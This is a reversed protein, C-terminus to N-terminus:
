GSIHQVLGCRIGRHGITRAATQPVRPDQGGMRIMWLVTAGLGVVLTLPILWRPAALPAPPPPPHWELQRALIMPAYRATQAQDIYGFNKFFYGTVSVHDILINGGRPMNQPVSTCVIVAPHNQSHDTYLWAEYLTKITQENEAIVILKRVRGRLTVLKGHYLDTNKILDVFM